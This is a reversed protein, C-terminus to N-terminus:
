KKQLNRFNKSLGSTCNFSGIEVCLIFVIAEHLLCVFCYYGPLIAFFCNGRSIFWGNIIVVTPEKFHTPVLESSRLQRQEQAIMGSSAFTVALSCDHLDRIFLVGLHLDEVSEKEANHLFAAHELNQLTRGDATSNKCPISVRLHLHVTPPVSCDSCGLLGQFQFHFLAVSNPDGCQWVLSVSLCIQPFEVDDGFVAEQLFNLVHCLKWEKLISFFFFDTLFAKKIWNPSYKM